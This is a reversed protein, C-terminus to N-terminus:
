YGYNIQLFTQICKNKDYNKPHAQCVQITVIVTATNRDHTTYLWTKVETAQVFLVISVYWLVTEGEGLADGCKVTLLQRNNERAATLCSNLWPQRARWAKPM